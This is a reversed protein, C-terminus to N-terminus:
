GESNIALAAVLLATSALWPWPAHEEWTTPLWSVWSDREEVADAEVRVACRPGEAETVEWEAVLMRILAEPRVQAPFAAELLTRAARPSVLYCGAGVWVVDATDTWEELRVDCRPLLRCGHEVVLVPTGEMAAVRWAVAHGVLRVLSKLTSIEHDGRRRTHGGVRAMTLATVVSPHTSLSTPDVVRWALRSRTLAEIALAWDLKEEVTGLYVATVGAM